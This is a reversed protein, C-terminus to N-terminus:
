NVWEDTSQNAITVGAQGSLKGTTRTAPDPTPQPATNRDITAPVMLTVGVFLFLGIAQYLVTNLEQPLQAGQVHAVVIAAAGAFGLLAAVLRVLVVLPRDRRLPALILNALGAFVGIIIGLIAVVSVSADGRAAGSQIRLIQQEPPAM